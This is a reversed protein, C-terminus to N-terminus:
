LIYVLYAALWLIITLVYPHHVNYSLIITLVYSTLTVYMTHFYMCVYVYNHLPNGEGTHIVFSYINLNNQLIGLKLHIQTSHHGRLHYMYTCGGVFVLNRGRIHNTNLPEM